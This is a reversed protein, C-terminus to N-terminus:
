EPEDIASPGKIFAPEAAVALAELQSRGPIPRSFVQVFQQNIFANYVNEYVGEYADEDCFFSGVEAGDADRLIFTRKDADIERVFGIVLRIKTDIHMREESIASRLFRSSDRDLIHENRPGLMQGRIEVRHIVSDSTPPSLKELAELVALSPRESSSDAIWKLGTSLMQGMRNITLISYDDLLLETQDPKRSSFAIEVSGFSLRQMPLDFFKRFSQAPRGIPPTDVAAEALKKLAAYAGDIGRKVASAPVRGPVLREGVLRVSLLPELSAYLMAHRAPLRNPPIKCPSVKWSSLVTLSFNTEALFGTPMLLAELVTIAGTKLNNIIRDDTPVLLYLFGDCDEDCLYWFYKWIGDHSIFIKPGDFDYLVEEIDINSQLNGDLVAINSAWDFRTM